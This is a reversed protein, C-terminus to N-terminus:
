NLYYNKYWSVFDALGDEFSITKKFDIEQLKQCSYVTCPNYNSKGVIKLLMKLVLKPVPITPFPYAALGLSKLLYNEVYSFNNAEAEDDSIIFVERNIKRNDMQMLLQIAAVVNYVSVLNMKRKSFLCSKIYNAIKHKSKLDNALKLLNKGGPGFIATPRLIVTKFVSHVRKFIAEEIKMKTIEYDNLPNCPTNETVSDISVRGFVSISSCQIFRQIKAKECSDLLNNIAALNNQRPQERLYALNIITANKECFRDLTEPCLLDGKIVTIRENNFLNDQINRHVLVRIRIEKRCLLSTVLHKGTFGTAGTVCVIEKDLSNAIMKVELLFTVYEHQGM